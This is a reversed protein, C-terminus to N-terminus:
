SPASMEIQYQRTVLVMALPPVIVAVKVVCAWASAVAIDHQSNVTAAAAVITTSPVGTPCDPSPTLMVVSAASFTV